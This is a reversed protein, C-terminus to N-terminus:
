DQGAKSALVRLLRYLRPEAREAFVGSIGSGVGAVCLWVALAASGSFPLACAAGFTFWLGASIVCYGVTRM